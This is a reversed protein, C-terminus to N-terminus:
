PRLVRTAMAYHNNPGTFRPFTKFDARMEHRVPSHLAAQLADQSDFAVKNRQMFNIRGWSLASVWDLRTYIELERIGPFTAMHMTHKELYHKHWANLDDAEGEYSVLYTCYPEGPTTRFAPEPVAFPRVLMAQHGIEAAALAPFEHGSTLEALHGARGVVAELAPLEAFYLQLVLSPPPGDKVYPDTTSAPSHVLARLLGPTARILGHLRASEAASPAAGFGISLFLCTNM